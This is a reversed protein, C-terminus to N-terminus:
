AAPHDDLAERLASILGPIPTGKQATSRAIEAVDLLAVLADSGPLDEGAAVPALGVGVLARVLALEVDVMAALLARDSTAEAAEGHAFLGAFLRSSTSMCAALRGALHVTYPPAIGSVLAPSVVVIASSRSCM